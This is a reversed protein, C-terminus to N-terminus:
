NAALDRCRLNNNQLILIIVGEWPVQSSKLYHISCASQQYVPATLILCQGCLLQCSTTWKRSERPEAELVPSNDDPNKCPNPNPNPSQLTHTGEVTHQKIVKKVTNGVSGRHIHRGEVWEHRWTKQCLMQWRGEKTVLLWYSCAQYLYVTEHPQTLREIQRDHILQRITQQYRLM